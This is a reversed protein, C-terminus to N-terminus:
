QQQPNDEVLDALYVEGDEPLAPASTWDM